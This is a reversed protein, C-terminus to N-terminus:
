IVQMLKQYEQIFENLDRPQLPHGLHITIRGSRLGFSRFPMIRSGGSLYVPLIPLSTLQASRILAESFSPLSKGKPIPSLILINEREKLVQYLKGVDSLSMALGTKIFGCGRYIRRMLPLKFGADGAVIKFVAPFYGLLVLNDLFSQHNATIILGKDPLSGPHDKLTIKISGCFLILRAAAKVLRAFLDNRFPRFLPEILALLFASIFFATWLGASRLFNLYDRMQTIIYYLDIFNELVMRM